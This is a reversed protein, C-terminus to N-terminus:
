SGAGPVPHITISGDTEIWASEIDAADKIGARRVAEEFETDSVAERRLAQYDVRGNEAIRVARGEVLVQARKSRATIWGIAFNLAILTGALLLGGPLSVDDGLLSNQVANGLLILLVMDFPTFQGVTRKGALRIMILLGVYVAVARLVFEWWPMALDLLDM